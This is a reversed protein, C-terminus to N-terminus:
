PRGHFRILGYMAPNIPYTSSRIPQVAYRNSEIYFRDTGAAEVFDQTGQLGVFTVLTTMLSVLAVTGCMVVSFIPGAYVSALVPGINTHAPFGAVKTTPMDIKVNALEPNYTFHSNRVEPHLTTSLPYKLFGRM